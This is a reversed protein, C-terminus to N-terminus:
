FKSIECAAMLPTKGVFQPNRTTNRYFHDIDVKNRSELYTYKIILDIYKSPADVRSKIIDFLLSSLNNPNLKPLSHAL